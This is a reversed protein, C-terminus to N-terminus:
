ASRTGHTVFLALHQGMECISLSDIQLTDAVSSTCISPIGGVGDDDDDDDGDCNGFVM